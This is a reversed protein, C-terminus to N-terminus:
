RDLRACLGVVWCIQCGVKSAAIPRRLRGDFVSTSMIYKEELLPGRWLLECTKNYVLKERTNSSARDPLQTFREPSYLLLEYTGNTM